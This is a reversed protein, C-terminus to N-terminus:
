GVLFHKEVWLVCEELRAAAHSLERSQFERDEASTQDVQKLTNWMALAGDKIDALVELEGQTLTAYAHLMVNNPVASPTENALTVPQALAPAAWAPPDAGAGGEPQTEPSLGPQKDAGESGDQPAEPVARATLMDHYSRAAEGGRIDSM